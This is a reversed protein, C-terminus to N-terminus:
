IELFSMMIWCCWLALWSVRLLLPNITKQTGKHQVQVLGVADAAEM